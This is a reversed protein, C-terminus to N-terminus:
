LPNAYVSDLLNAARTKADEAAALAAKSNAVARELADLKAKADDTAEKTPPAPAAASSAPAAGSAPATASQSHAPPSIILTISICALTRLCLSPSTQRSFEM